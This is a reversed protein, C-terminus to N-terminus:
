GGNAVHAAPAPGLPPAARLQRPRGARGPVGPEPPSRPRPAAGTAAAPPGHSHAARRSSPRPAAPAAMSTHSLPSCGGSSCQSRLSLSSHSGASGSVRSPWVTLLAPAARPPPKLGPQHARRKNRPNRLVSKPFIPKPLEQAKKCSTSSRNSGGLAIPHRATVKLSGGPARPLSHFARGEVATSRHDKREKRSLALLPTTTLHSARQTSWGHWTTPIGPLLVM